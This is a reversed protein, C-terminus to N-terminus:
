WKLYAIFLDDLTKDFLSVPCSEFCWDIGDTGEKQKADILETLALLANELGFVQPFLCSCGRQQNFM